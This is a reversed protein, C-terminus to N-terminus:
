PTQCAEPQDVVIKHADKELLVMRARRQHQPDDQFNGVQHHLIHLGLRSIGGMSRYAKLASGYKGIKKQLNKDMETEIKM